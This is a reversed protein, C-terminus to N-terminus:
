NQYLQNLRAAAFHDRLLASLPKLVSACQATNYSSKCPLMIQMAHNAHCCSKCPLAREHKTFVKEIM